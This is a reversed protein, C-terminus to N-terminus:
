GCAATDSRRCVGVILEPKGVSTLSQGALLPPVPVNYNFAKVLHTQGTPPHLRNAILIVVVQLPFISKARAALQKLNCSPIINPVRPQRATTTGIM